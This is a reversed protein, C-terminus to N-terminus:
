KMEVMVVKDDVVDVVNSVVNGLLFVLGILIDVKEFCMDIGLGVEWEEDMFSSDVFVGSWILVLCVLLIFCWLFVGVGVRYKGMRLFNDVGMICWVVIDEWVWYLIDVSWSCM